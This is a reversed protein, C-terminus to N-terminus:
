TYYSVPDNKKTIEEMELIIEGDFRNGDIVHEAPFRFSIGTPRFDKKQPINNNQYITRFYGANFKRDFKVLVEEGSGTITFPINNKFDFTFKFTPEASPKTSNLVIKIPSQMIQSGCNGGWKEQEIWNWYTPAKLPSYSGNM